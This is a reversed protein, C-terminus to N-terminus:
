IENEMPSDVQQWNCNKGSTCGGRVVVYPKVNLVCSNRTMDEKGFLKNNHQTAKLVKRDVFADGVHHLRLFFM